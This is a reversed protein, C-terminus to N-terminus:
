SIYGKRILAIVWRHYIAYASCLHVSAMIDGIVVFNYCTVLEPDM